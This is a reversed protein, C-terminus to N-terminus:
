GLTTFVKLSYFSKYSLDYEYNIAIEDNGYDGESANKELEENWVEDLRVAADKRLVDDGRKGPKMGLSDWGDKKGRERVVWEAETKRSQEWMRREFAVREHDANVGELWDDPMPPARGYKKIEGPRNTRSYLEVAAYVKAQHVHGGGWGFLYQVLLHLHAFSYNLPLAVTRFVGKFRALQFRLRVHATSPAPLVTRPDPIDERTSVDFLRAKKRSSAVSVSADDHTRKEAETM